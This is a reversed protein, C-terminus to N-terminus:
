RSYTIGWSVSWHEDPELWKVGEGTNFADPPATMPEIAVALGLDGDKPFQRTTFVQVWRCNEDQWIDVRRGDPAELSSKSIGDVFQVQGFATDLHLDGVKRGERLDYETGDVPSEGITNLRDDVDIITGASLTLTIDEMPVDGIRFFPHTGVAVPAPAKSLNRFGHTVTLGDEVLEYRVTTELQFPYGHQPFVKAGLTIGSDDREVVTYPSNRLLGHLSNHRAPETIDLQQKEGNLTWVGDRIRNPWPVLVIGDGFPPTADEAYPETLDVGDITFTRLSAAVETIIAHSTGTETPRSIVFQQGTPANM